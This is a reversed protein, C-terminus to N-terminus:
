RSHLSTATEHTARVPFHEDYANALDHLAQRGDGTFSSGHMCALTRPKLDALTRATDALRTPSATYAFMTEAQMSPGVVDRETTTPPDGIQTFLDGCLLTQTTEEFLV